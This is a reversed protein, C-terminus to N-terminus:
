SARSVLDWTAVDVQKFIDPKTRMASRLVEKPNTKSIAWKKEYFINLIESLTMPGPHEKLLNHIRVALSGKQLKFRIVRIPEKAPKTPPEEKIDEGILVRGYQIFAEVQELRQKIADLESLKNLLLKKEEQASQIAKAIAENGNSLM